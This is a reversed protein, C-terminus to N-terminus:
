ELIDEDKNARKSSLYEDIEKGITIILIIEM